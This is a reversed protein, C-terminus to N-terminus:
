KLRLIAEDSFIQLAFNYIEVFDVLKDGDLNMCFTVIKQIHVTGGSCYGAGASPPIAAMLVTTLDQVMEFPSM